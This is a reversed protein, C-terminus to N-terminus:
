LRPAPVDYAVYHSAVRALSEHFAAGAMLYRASTTAQAIYTLLAARAPDSHVRPRSIFQVAQDQRDFDMRPENNSMDGEARRQERTAAPAMAANNQERNERHGKATPQKTATEDTDRFM